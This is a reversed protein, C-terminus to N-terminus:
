LALLRNFFSRYRRIAQRLDETSAEDGGSWARELEQRERAFSESLRRMVEDVLQDAQQVAGKPEDVFGVQITQWRAQLDKADAEAFLAAEAGRPTAAAPAAAAASGAPSETLGAEPRAAPTPDTGAARSQSTESRSEPVGATEGAAPERMDDTTAGADPATTTTRTETM